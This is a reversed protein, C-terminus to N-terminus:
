SPKLRACFWLFAPIFITMPEKNNFWAVLGEHEGERRVAADQVILQEAASLWSVVGFHSWIGIKLFALYRRDMQCIISKHGTEDKLVWIM